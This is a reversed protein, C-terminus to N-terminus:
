LSTEELPLPAHPVYKVGKAFLGLAQLHILVTARASMPGYRLFAALLTADTLPRRNVKIAAVLLPETELGDHVDDLIAATLLDGPAGFRFKYTADMQIFPSVHFVKTAEYTAGWVLPEGHRHILYNHHEHFTNNVEALVARVTGDGHFCYWFSVPFFRSGLVHPFALLAVRGGALDVGASTLLAHIWPLLPSADRPGHDADRLSILGPGNHSFLRLALDLREVEGLDLYLFYIGYQFENRVPRTRQHMVEGTYLASRM